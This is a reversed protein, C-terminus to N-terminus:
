EKFLSQRHEELPHIASCLGWRMCGAERDNALLIEKSGKSFAWAVADDIPLPQGRASFWAIDKAQPNDKKRLRNIEAELARIEDIKEPTEESILRLNSKTSFICPWCGVRHFGMLYLPNPRVNHKHHMAIVDETKWKLIPRWVEAMLQSDYEWEPYLARNRSEQARVGVASVLEEEQEELYIRMPLIKLEGTCFRANKAPFRKKSRIMEKMGGNPPAIVEIPGLIPQLYALLYEKTAPHEWGTDIFVRRHPINSEHFLLAMATSDKGGSLSLVVERGLLNEESKKEWEKRALESLM